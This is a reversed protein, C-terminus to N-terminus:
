ALKSKALEALKAFSEQKSSRASLLAPSAAQIMKATVQELLSIQRSQLQIFEQTTYQTEDYVWFDGERRINERIYVTTPSSQTDIEPPKEPQSGRINTYHKM